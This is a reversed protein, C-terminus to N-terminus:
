SAPNSVAPLELIFTAGRGPGDSKAHLAGGLEKAALASTHLGFGHGSKKTTFGFGYIRTLNEEAIGVGTDTVGIQVNGNPALDLSLTLFRERPVVTEQMAEKANRILNVLIQLAKHRQVRVAPVASYHRVVTVLHRSLAAESIRLAYEILESPPVDETVGEVRALSQQAALIEIMHDVSERVADLEALFARQEQTLQEALQELYIPIQRARPDSAFFEPLRQGNDAILQALRGVGPAKSSRAREITVSVSTNVSNLANGINHLVGTAMEAVGALRSTEILERQTERLLQETERFVTMDWAIVQVGLCQDNEGHLPIKKVHFYRKRGADREVVEEQELPQRTEMVRRDEAVRRAAIEPPYLDHDTCGVIQEVPRGLLESFVSNSYTYVGKADKRVILQPLSEVLSHYFYESSRLAEYSKALDTAAVELERNARTLAFQTRSGYVATSLDRVLDPFHLTFESDVDLVLLGFQEEGQMLQLVVVATWSKGGLSEVVRFSEVHSPRVDSLAVTESLDWWEGPVSTRREAARTPEHLFLGASRVKLNRLTTHLRQVITSEDAAEILLERLAATASAFLIASEARRRQEEFSAESVLVFARDLNAQSVSTQIPDNTARVSREIDHLFPYLCSPNLGLAKKRSRLVEFNKFFAEAGLGVQRLQAAARAGKPDRLLTELHVASRFREERWEAVFSTDDLEETTRRTSGREILFTPVVTHRQALTEGRALKALSHIAVYSQQYTEADFTSLPPDSWRSRPVNDFGIVEVGQPIQRGHAQLVSMAGLASVDNSALVATFELGAELLRKTATAGATETYEGKVVLHPDFPLGADALGEQYGALRERATYINEPGAVFAIRRHGRRALDGVARRFATRNEGMVSPVDAERRSTLLTPRGAAWCRGAFRQLADGCSSFVVGAYDALRFFLQDSLYREDWRSFTLNTLAAHIVVRYGVERASETIGRIPADFKTGELQMFYAFVPGGKPASDVSTKVSQFPFLPM